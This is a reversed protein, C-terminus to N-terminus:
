ALIVDEQYGTESSLDAKNSLEEEFEFQLQKAEEEYESIPLMHYPSDDALVGPKTIDWDKDPDFMAQTRALFKLYKDGFSELWEKKYAVSMKQNDYLRAEAEETYFVIIKQNKQEKVFGTLTYLKNMDWGSLEYLVSLFARGRIKIPKDKGKIRMDWRISHKENKASPRVILMGFFPHYLLEVYHIDQLEELAEASFRIDQTNVSAIIRGNTSLFQERTVQFDRFDYEGTRKRIQIVPNLYDADSLVSQCANLYDDLSYGMWFPNIQVFGKLTGSDIVKLGPTGKKYGYKAQDIMSQAVLFIERSVIAEHNDKAYYQPKEGNNKAKKHDLFNPTYTKRALVDGCHRENRLIHVISGDSWEENGLKTRRKLRTLEDAIEKCSFGCLYKLFIYRVTRAEDPNIVLNGDEDHDYGLLVPTLFINMSFRMEYSRNMSVSKIHSEEQAMSANMTLTLDVNEDLSYTGQEEFFIGTRPRKNKLLKIFHLCDETNRAFRSVSKTVILDIKNDMCDRIMRMFEERHSLSTGSIGEDAYIDVLEWNPNRQVLTEYYNKQLEYSSTQNPDDTSVRAYIAVRCKQSKDFPQKQPKAPIVKVNANETQRYRKRIREKQEQKTSALTEIERM